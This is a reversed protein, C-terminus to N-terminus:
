PLEVVQPEIPTLDSVYTVVVPFPKDKLRPKYRHTRGGVRMLSGGARTKKKKINHPGIVDASSRKKAGSAM